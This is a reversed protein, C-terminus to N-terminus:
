IGSLFAFSSIKHYQVIYGYKWCAETFRNCFLLKNAYNGLRCATQSQGLTVLVHLDSTSYRRCQGLSWIDAGCDYGIEQIVEPAMWYPTGIVTNRKAM